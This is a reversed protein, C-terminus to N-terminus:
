AVDNLDGEILYDNDALLEVIPRPWTHRPYLRLYELANDREDDEWFQLFTRASPRQPRSTGRRSPYTFTLTKPLGREYRAAISEVARRHHDCTITLTGLKIRACDGVRTACAWPITQALRRLHAAVERSSRPTEACCTYDFTQLNM